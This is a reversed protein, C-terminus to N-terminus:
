KPNVALYDNIFQDVYDAISRRITSLEDVPATGVLTRSWTSATITPHYTPNTSIVTRTLSVDQDLSVELSYSYGRYIASRISQINIYLNPMGPAKLMQEKSLVPIGAKRLRLEVDTQIRDHTLGDSEMDVRIQEVLVYVGSLGRLTERQQQHITNDQPLPFGLTLLTIILRTM